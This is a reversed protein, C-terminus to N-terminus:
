VVTQDKLVPKSQDLITTIYIKIKRLYYTVMAHSRVTSVMNMTPDWGNNAEM